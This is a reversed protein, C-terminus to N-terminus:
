KSAKIAEKDGYWVYKGQRGVCKLNEKLEKIEEKLKKIQDEYADIEASTLDDAFKRVMYKATKLELEAEEIEMEIELKQAQYYLKAAKATELKVITVSKKDRSAYLTAEVATIKSDDDYVVIYDADKLNAEAKELNLKPKACAVFPVVCAIVLVFALLRKITNKM